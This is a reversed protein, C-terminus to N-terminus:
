SSRWRYAGVAAIVMYALNRLPVSYDGTIYGQIIIPMYLCGSFAYIKMDYGIRMARAISCAIIGATSVWVAIETARATLFFMLGCLFTCQLFVDRTVEKDRHPHMKQLSITTSSSYWFYKREGFTYGSKKRAYIANFFLPGVGGLVVIDRL